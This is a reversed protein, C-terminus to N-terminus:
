EVILWMTHKCKECIIEERKMDRKLSTFLLPEHFIRIAKCKSCVVGSTKSINNGSCSSIHRENEDIVIEDVELMFPIRCKSCKDLQGPVIFIKNGCHSCYTFFIPIIKGGKIRVKRTSIGFANDLINCIKDFALHFKNSIWESPKDNRFERIWKKCIEENAVLIVKGNGKVLYDWIHKDDPNPKVGIVIIVDSNSIADQFKKLIPQIYDHNSILVDKNKTYLSMAPPFSIKKLIAEVENQPVTQLPGEFKATGMIINGDNKIGSKIFNCSGHIKLIEIGDSGEWYKHKLPPNTNICCIADEILCEYNITSLLLQGNQLEPYYRRVIKCYLNEDPSDIQFKSFYIAMDILYQIFQPTDRTRIYLEEMGAEFFDIFRQNLDQPVQGWTKPYNSKLENFLGAGSPPIKNVGQSGLSAGAGFLIVVKEKAEKEKEGM